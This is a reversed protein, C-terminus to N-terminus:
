SVQIEVQKLNRNKLKIFFWDDKNKEILESELDLDSWKTGDLDITIFWGPNDVTDIKIGYSHEWHGDCQSQYWTQLWNLIEIM